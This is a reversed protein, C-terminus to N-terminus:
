FNKFSFFFCEGQYVVDSDSLGGTDSDNDTNSDIIIVEPSFDEPRLPSHATNESHGSFPYSQPLVSRDIAEMVAGNATVEVGAMAQAETSLNLPTEVNNVIESFISSNPDPADTFRIRNDYTQMDLRSRLFICLEHMFHLSRNQLYQEVFMMFFRTNISHNRLTRHIVDIFRSQLPVDGGLLAIAERNLWPRLKEEFDPNASFFVNKIGVFIIAIIKFNLLIAVSM